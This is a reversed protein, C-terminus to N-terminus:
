RSHRFFKSGPLLGFTIIAAVLVILPVFAPNVHLIRHVRGVFGRRNDQFEKGSNTQESM